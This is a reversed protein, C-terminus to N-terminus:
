ALEANGFSSITCCNLYILSKGCLFHIVWKETMEIGLTRSWNYNM